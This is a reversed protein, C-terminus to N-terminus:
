IQHIDESYMRFLTYKPDGLVYTNYQGRRPRWSLTRDPETGVRPPLQGGRTHRGIQRGGLQAPLNPRPWDGLLYPLPLPYPYTVVCCPPISYHRTPFKQRAIYFLSSSASKKGGELSGLRHHGVTTTLTSSTLLLKCFTSKFPNVACYALDISFICIM